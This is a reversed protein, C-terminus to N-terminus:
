ICSSFPCQFFLHAHNEVAASCLVCQDTIAMGWTLLRDKTALRGLNALWQIISWNPVHHKFWIIPHWTVQTHQRRVDKWASKISFSNNPTLNWFNTDEQSPHPIFHPPTARLIERTVSNRGRPWQWSQASIITDVKAHLNRGLNYVVRSGFRAYLPGLPHWNDLWLFTNMGNGVVNTIWPHVLPRLKFLKRITWSASVPIPITWLCHNKIICTHLWKVWLNDAKLALAWLHKIM